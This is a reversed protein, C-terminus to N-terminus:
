RLNLATGSHRPNARFCPAESSRAPVLRPIGRWIGSISPDPVIWRPRSHPRGASVEPTIALAAIIVAAPPVDHVRLSLLPEELQQLLGRGVNDRVPFPGRPTRLAVLGKLSVLLGFRGRSERRRKVRRAGVHYALNRTPRYGIKPGISSTRARHDCSPRRNTTDGHPDTRRGPRSPVM